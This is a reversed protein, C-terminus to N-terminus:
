SLTITYTVDAEDSFSVFPKLEIEVDTTDDNLEYACQVDLSVGPKIEKLKEDFSLGDIGYSTLVFGLEVGDQYATDTVAYGFAQSEESNNTFTYTVILIDNGSPDSTVRSDKLDVRYNGINNDSNVEAAQTNNVPATTSAPDTTTDTSGDGGLTGILWFVFFVAVIVIIAIWWKKKKKPAPAPAPAPAPQNYPVYGNPTQQPANPRATPRNNAGVPSGCKPCIGGNPVETGCNQCFM